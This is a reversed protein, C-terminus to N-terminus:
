RLLDYCIKPILVRSCTVIIEDVFVEIQKKHLAYGIAMPDSSGSTQEQEVEQQRVQEEKVDWQIIQGGELIINGKDGHIELKEPYGGHISTSGEITGMAGSEFELIALGLDEGEIEHTLTKVKGFVSKVSGFILILLDITHISQNILAAGGDGKLTGRWSASNYYNQDRFWKVYANGLLLKGVSGSEVSEKIKLFIKATDIKSFVHYDLEQWNM